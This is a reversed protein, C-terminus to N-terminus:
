SESVKTTNQILFFDKIHSFVLIRFGSFNVCHEWIVEGAQNYFRRVLSTRVFVVMVLVADNVFITGSFDFSLSYRKNFTDGVSDGDGISIM